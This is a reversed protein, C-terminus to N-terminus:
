SKKGRILKEITASMAINERDAMEGLLQKADASIYFTTRLLGKSGKLRRPSKLSM